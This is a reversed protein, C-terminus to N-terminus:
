FLRGNQFDLECIEKNDQDMDDYGVKEGYEDMGRWTLNSLEIGCKKCNM